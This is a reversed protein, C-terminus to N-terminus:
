PREEQRKFDITVIVTRDAAQYPAREYRWRRVAELAAAEFGLGPRTCGEVTAGSVSGDAAVALRLTVRAEARLSRAVVPYVPPVRRILAPVADQAAAPWSPLGPEVGPPPADPPPIVAEFEAVISTAAWQPSPEPVPEVVPARPGATKSGGPPPRPLPTAASETPAPAPEPPPVIRWVLPFDEPPEYAPVTTRMRVVPLLLILGHVALAALLLVPVLHGLPPGGILELHRGSAAVKDELRLLGRPGSM